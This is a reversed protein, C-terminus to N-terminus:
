VLNPLIWKIEGDRGICLSSHILFTMTLTHNSYTTFEVEIPYWLAREYKVVLAVRRGHLVNLDILVSRDVGLETWVRAGDSGDSRNNMSWAPSPAVSSTHLVYNMKYLVCWWDSWDSKDSKYVTWVKRASCDRLIFLDMYPVQVRIQGICQIATALTHREDKRSLNVSM